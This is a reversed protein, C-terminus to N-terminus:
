IRLLRVANETTAAAIEELPREIGDYINNLIGPGLTAFIAEGAGIVEEGPKLGGTEEYVQVTTIHNKLSIVEGVLREKGVYVMESMMFDPADKMYVVPGTKEKAQTNM